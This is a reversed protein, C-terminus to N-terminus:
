SCSSARMRGRATPKLANSFAMVRSIAMPPEVLVMRCRSAIALSAPMSKLMVSMSRRERTTGCSHM